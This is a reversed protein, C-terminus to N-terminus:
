CLRCMGSTGLPMPFHRSEPTFCDDQPSIIGFRGARMRAGTLWQHSLFRKGQVNGRNGQYSASIGQEALYIGQEISYPIQWSVCQYLYKKSTRFSEIDPSLASIGQLNGYKLSKLCLSTRSLSCGGGNKGQKRSKKLRDPIRGNNRANITPRNDNPPRSVGQRPGFQRLEPM